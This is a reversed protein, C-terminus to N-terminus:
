GQRWSKSSVSLSSVPGASHSMAAKRVSGAHDQMRLSRPPPQGPHRAPSAPGAGCSVVCFAPRRNRNVILDRITLAERRAARPGVALGLEGVHPEGVLEGPPLRSGADGGVRQMGTHHARTESVLVWRSKMGRSNMGTMRGKMFDGARPAAAEM